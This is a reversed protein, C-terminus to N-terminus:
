ATPSVWVEYRHGAPDLVYCSYGEGDDHDRTGEVAAGLSELEALLKEKPQYDTSVTFHPFGDLPGESADALAVQLDGLEIFTERLMRGGKIPHEIRNVVKGGMVKTYFTEAEQPNPVSLALTRIGKILPM